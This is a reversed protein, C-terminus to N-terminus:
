VREYAWVGTIIDIKDQSTVGSGSVVTQLGASNNIVLSVEGGFNTVDAINHNAGKCSVVYPTGTDEFDITYPPLIEVARAYTTGSLVVESNHNHTRPMAMGDESDEWDILDTRFSEVDLEYSGGPLPTLYSQPVYIHYNLYNVSIAM